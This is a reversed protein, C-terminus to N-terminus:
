KSAQRLLDKVDAWLQQCAAHEASSLGALATEERLGALDPDSEWHRLQKQVAARSQPTGDDLYRGGFASIMDNIM